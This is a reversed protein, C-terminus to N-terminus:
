GAVGNEDINSVTSDSIGSIENDTNDINDTIEPEDNIYKNEMFKFKGYKFVNEFLAKALYPIFTYIIVKVVTISLQEAITDKDMFALIYSLYVWVVANTLILDVWRKTFSDPANARKFLSCIKERFSPKDKDDKKNKRSFIGM